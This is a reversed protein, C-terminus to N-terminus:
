RIKRDFLLLPETQVFNHFESSLLLDSVTKSYKEEDQPYCLFDIEHLVSIKGGRM